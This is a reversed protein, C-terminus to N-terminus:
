FQELVNLFQVKFYIYVLCIYLDPKMSFKVFLGKDDKNDRIRGIGEFVKSHKNLLRSIEQKSSFDASVANIHTEKGPIRLSNIEAFSGDDRIQLMGLEILTSKSILPPSNVRGKVVLFRSQIGCTQNRVIASFEGKIPLENQLTMLKIKSDKLKMQEASRHLLARFQFEDMVNVDAGSDPEARISIDNIMLPVTKELSYRKKIRIINMHAVSQSLFDEDSSDESESEQELTKKVRNRGRKTDCKSNSKTNRYRDARCVSAFHNPKRCLDCTKGYAPCSRRDQHTKKLGCFTCPNIDTDSKRNGYKQKWEPRKNRDIRAVQREKDGLKM